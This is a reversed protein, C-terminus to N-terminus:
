QLSPDAIFRCGFITEPSKLHSQVGSPLQGYVKSIIETLKPSLLLLDCDDEHGLTMLKDMVFDSIVDSPDLEPM